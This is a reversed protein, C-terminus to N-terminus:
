NIFIKFYVINPHVTDCTIIFKKEKYEITLKKNIKLFIETIKGEKDILVKEVFEKVVKRREAKSAKIMIKKFNKLTQFAEQSDVDEGKKTLEVDLEQYKKELKTIEKNCDNIKNNLDKKSGNELGIADLFNDKKRKEKKISKEIFKLKKELDTKEKSKDRHLSEKVEEESLNVTYEDLINIFQKDIKKINNSNPHCGKRNTYSGCVYYYYTKNYKKKHAKQVAM